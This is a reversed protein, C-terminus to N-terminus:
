RAGAGSVTLPACSVPTVTSIVEGEDRRVVRTRDPYMKDGSAQILRSIGLLCIGATGAPLWVFYFLFTGASEPPSMAAVALAGMVGIYLLCFASCIIRDRTEQRMANVAYM